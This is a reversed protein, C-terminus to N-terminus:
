LTLRLASSKIQTTSYFDGVYLKHVQHRNIAILHWCLDCFTSTHVTETVRRKAAQV